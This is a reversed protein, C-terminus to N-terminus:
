GGSKALIEPAHDLVADSLDAAEDAAEAISNMIVEMACFLKQIQPGKSLPPRISRFGTCLPLSTCLWAGSLPAERNYVPGNLTMRSKGKVGCGGCRM